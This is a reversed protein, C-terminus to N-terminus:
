NPNMSFSLIPFFTSSKLSLNTWSTDFRCSPNVGTTITTLFPGCTQLPNSSAHYTMSEPLVVCEINYYVFSDNIQFIMGLPSELSSGDKSLAIYHVETMKSINEFAKKMEETLNNNEDKKEEKKEEEEEEQALLLSKEVLENLAFPVHSIMKVTDKKRLKLESMINMVDEDHTAVDLMALLQKENKAKKIKTISFLKPQTKSPSKAKSQKLSTTTENTENTENKKTKM